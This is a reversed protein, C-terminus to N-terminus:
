TQRVTRGDAERQTQGDAHLLEAGMPHIKM